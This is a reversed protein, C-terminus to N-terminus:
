TEVVFRHVGAVNGDPGEAWDTSHETPDIAPAPFAFIITLNL